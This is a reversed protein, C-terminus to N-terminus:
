NHAGQVCANFTNTFSIAGNAAQAANEAAGVCGKVSNAYGATSLPTNASISILPPPPPEPFPSNGGLGIPPTVPVPNGGPGPQTAGANSVQWPDGTHLNNPDDTTTLTATGLSTFGGTTISGCTAANTCPSYNFGLGLGGQGTSCSSMAADGECPGSLGASPDSPDGMPPAMPDGVPGMVMLGGAPGTYNNGLDDFGSPCPLWWTNLADVGDVACVDMGTPDIGTLPSNRVYAYRNLTQPDGWHMSSRGGPDPSPWRGQIGYERAPFDYLNASTDQNMGTFSLDSTGAQAYAEGFPGYASDSYMTRTPTSAFRSSGIWDSHRYYALGSSNYM